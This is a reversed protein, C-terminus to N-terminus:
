LKKQQIKWRWSLLLLCSVSPYSMCCLESAPFSGAVNHHGHQRTAHTSVMAVLASLVKSSELIFIHTFVCIFFCIHLYLNLPKLYKFDAIPALIIPQQSLKNMTRFSGGIMITVTFPDLDPSFSSMVTLFCHTIHTYLWHFLCSTVIYYHNYWFVSSGASSLELCIRYHSVSEDVSKRRM